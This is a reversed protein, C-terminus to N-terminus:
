DLLYRNQSIRAITFNAVRDHLKSISDYLQNRPQLTPQANVSKILSINTVKM